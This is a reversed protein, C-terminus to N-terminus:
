AGLPIDVNPNSPDDDNVRRHDLWYTGTTDKYEMYSLHVETTSTGTNYTDYGVIWLNPKSYIEPKRSGFEYLMFGEWRSSISVQTIKRTTWEPTLTYQWTTTDKMEELHIDSDEAKSLPQFVLRNSSDQWLVVSAWLESLNRDTAHDPRDAYVRFIRNTNASFDTADLNKTLLLNDKNAFTEIKEESDRSFEFTGYYQLTRPHEDEKRWTMKIRYVGDAKLFIFDNESMSIIKNESNSYSTETPNLFFDYIFVQPLPLANVGIPVERMGTDYFKCYITHAAATLAVGQLKPIACLIGGTRLHNREWEGVRVAAIGAPNVAPGWDGPGFAVQDPRWTHTYRYGLFNVAQTASNPDGYTSLSTSATKIRDSYDSQGIICHKFVVIGNPSDAEVAYALLTM